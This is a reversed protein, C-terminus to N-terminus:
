RAGGKPCTAGKGPTVGGNAKIWAYAQRSQPIVLGYSGDRMPKCIPREPPLYPAAAAIRVAALLVLLAGTAVAARITRRRLAARRARIALCDTRTLRFQLM